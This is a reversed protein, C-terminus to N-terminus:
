SDARHVYGSTASFGGVWGSGHRSEHGEVGLEKWAFHLLGKIKRLLRMWLPLLAEMKLGGGHVM